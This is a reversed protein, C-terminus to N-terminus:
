MFCLWFNIRRNLPVANWKLQVVRRMNKGRRRFRMHTSNIEGDKCLNRNSCRVCRCPMGALQEVNTLSCPQPSRLWLTGCSLERSCKFTAGSVFSNESAWIMLSIVFTALSKRGEVDSVCTFRFLFLSLRSFTKAGSWPTFSSSKVAM